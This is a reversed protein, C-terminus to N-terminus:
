ELNRAGSSNLYIHALGSPAGDERDSHIKLDVRGYKGKDTLLVADARGISGSWKTAGRNFGIDISSQYGELPALNIVQGEPVGYLSGSKLEVKVNWNYGRKEGEKRDRTPTLLLVDGDDGFPVEVPTGNWALKFRFTGLSEVRKLHSSM